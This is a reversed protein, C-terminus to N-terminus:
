NPKFVYNGGKRIRKELINKGYILKFPAGSLSHVTASVLKGAKWQADIEFGHRARL